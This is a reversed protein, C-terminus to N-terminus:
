KKLYENIIQYSKQNIKARSKGLNKAIEENFNKNSVGTNEPKKVESMAKKIKKDAISKSNLEIFDILKKAKQITDEENDSVIFELIETYNGKDLGKAVFEKEAKIRNKDILVLKKENELEKVKEVLKQEATLKAEKELRSKIETELKVKLSEERSKLFDDLEGQNNFTKFPKVESNSGINAHAKENEM